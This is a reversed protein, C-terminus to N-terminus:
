LFAVVEFSKSSRSRQIRRLSRQRIQRRQARIRVRARCSMLSPNVSLFAHHQARLPRPGHHLAPVGCMFAAYELAAKSRIPRMEMTAVTRAEAQIDDSDGVATIRFRVDPPIPPRRPYGGGGVRYLPAQLGAM